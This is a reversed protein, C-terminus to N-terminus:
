SPEGLPDLLLGRWDSGDPGGPKAGADLHRGLIYPHGDPSVFLGTGPDYRTVAGPASSSTVGGTTDPPPAGEPQRHTQSSKRAADMISAIGAEQAAASESASQFELGCGSASSSRRAANGPCPSNENRRVAIKSDQPLTCGVVFPPQPTLDAPNRQSAGQYGRTCPAPDEVQTTLFIRLSNSQPNNYLASQVYNLMAPLVIISHRIHPMYVEAVEGVENANLLLRPLPDHLKRAFSEVSSTLEPTDAIIGRLKDDSSRLVDTFKALNGVTAQTKSGLREQTGLVTQLDRILNQTPALNAEASGLLPGSADLVRRWDDSTGSFATSLERLSNNLEDRPLTSTLTNVHALLTNIDVPMQTNLASVTSGAALRPVAAGRPKFDLYQEGIASVSRVYVDSQTPIAVNSDVLLSAKVGDPTLTIETVEGIPSGRMTVVSRPYLNGTSQLEVYLPYRGVGATRLLGSYWVALIVAVVTVVIFAVFQARQLRTIM